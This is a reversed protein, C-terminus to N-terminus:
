SGSARRWQKWDSMVAQVMARSADLLWGSRRKNLDSLVPRRAKQTGLHINATEWGMSYLLRLEDRKVPLDGLQIRSCDPSLRRVLWSGQVRVFPDPSRVAHDLIRQYQSGLAPDAHGAWVTASLATAKAERALRGGHWNSLVVFRKLGLSGLGCVRHAFTLKLRPVPLLAQIARGASKPIKKLRQFEDMKHWFLTPSRKDGQAMELLRKNKDGLLFPRGSEKLGDRYGELVAGAMAAQNVALLNEKGALLASALLRVLDITYPQPAAEDFDNIGWVLRGEADRWTGFNEVHLDGVALVNPATILKPCIEPWVQAWRYFTARLFRFASQRMLGHKWRLQAPILRTHRGLWREYDRTAQVIDMTRNM